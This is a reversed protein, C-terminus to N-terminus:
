EYKDQRTSFGHTSDLEAIFINLVVNSSKMGIEQSYGTYKM